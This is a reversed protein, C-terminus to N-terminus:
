LGFHSRLLRLSLWDPLLRRAWPVQRSGAGVTYRVRPRRTTLARHIVRAVTEPGPARPLTERIVREVASAQPAYASAAPNGWDMAANFGTNIDGPDVLSVPIGFARLEGHLALALAATAAKSASYPAQFPIPARGALYGVLVVRGRRAGRMGPLVARLARLTGFFNTEFQDIAQSLSVEEVSGFIGYGANCVLADPAHLTWPSRRSGPGRLDRRARGHRGM